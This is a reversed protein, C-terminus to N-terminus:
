SEEVVRVESYVFRWHYWAGILVAIHFCEHPGIVGPIITPRAMVNILAGITYIVGGIALLRVFKWGHKLGLHIGIIIGCWGLGLQLSTWALRPITGYFVCLLSIFIVAASWILGLPIWCQLGRYMMGHIPTMTGVILIFIASNDIRLLVERGGGPGLLHYTGSVAFLLVVSVSYIWLFIRGHTAERLLQWGLFVFLGAGALHTWSSVPEFFGPISYIM